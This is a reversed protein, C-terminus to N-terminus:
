IKRVITNCAGYNYSNNKYQNHGVFNDCAEQKDNRIATRDITFVIDKM